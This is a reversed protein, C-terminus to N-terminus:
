LKDRMEEAKDILERDGTAKIREYIKKAEDYDDGCLCWFFENLLQKKEEKTLKM